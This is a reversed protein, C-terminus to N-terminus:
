VKLNNKFLFKLQFWNLVLLFVLVWAEESFFPGCNLVMGVFRNFVDLCSM